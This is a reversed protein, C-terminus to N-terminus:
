VLLSPQLAIYDNTLICFLHRLHTGLINESRECMQEKNTPRSKRANGSLESHYKLSGRCFVPLTVSAASPACSIVKGTKGLTTQIERIILYEM